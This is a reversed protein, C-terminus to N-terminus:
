YNLQGVTRKVTWKQLGRQSWPIRLAGHRSDVYDLLDFDVSAALQLYKAEDVAAMKLSQLETEATQTQKQLAPM